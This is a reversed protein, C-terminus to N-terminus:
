RPLVAETRIGTSEFETLKAVLVERDVQDEGHRKCFTPFLNGYDEDIIAIPLDITRVPGPGRYGEGKLRRMHSRLNDFGSLFQEPTVPAQTRYRAGEPTIMVHGVVSPCERCIVRVAVSVSVVPGRPEAAQTRRPGEPRRRLGRIPEVDRQVAV